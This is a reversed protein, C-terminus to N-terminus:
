CADAAEQLVPHPTSRWGGVPHHVHVLTHLEVAQPAGHLKDVADRYSCMLESCLLNFVAARIMVTEVQRHIKLVLM